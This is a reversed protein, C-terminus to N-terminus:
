ITLIKSCTVLGLARSVDVRFIAAAWSLSEVGMDGTLVRREADLSVSRLVLYMALMVLLWAMLSFIELPTNM